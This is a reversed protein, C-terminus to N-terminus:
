NLHFYSWLAGDGRPGNSRAAVQYVEANAILRVLHKLDYGSAVFDRALADLLDQMMPPNSERLDDVPESFGRGLMVGWMRNVIARAFWPNDKRTIWEALATRPRGGSLLDTGDLARPAASKYEAIDMNKAARRPRDLDEVDYPRMGKKDK